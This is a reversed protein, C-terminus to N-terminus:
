KQRGNTKTTTTTNLTKIRTRIGDRKNKHYYFGIFHRGTNRECWCYLSDVLSFSLFTLFYLFGHYTDQFKTVGWFSNYINTGRCLCFLAESVITAFATSQQNSHVCPILCLYFFFFLFITISFLLFYFATRFPFINFYFTFPLCIDTLLFKSFLNFILFLCFIILTMTIQFSFNPFYM